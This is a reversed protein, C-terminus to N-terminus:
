KNTKTAMGFKVGDCIKKVEEMEIQIKFRLWPALILSCFLSIIEKKKKKKQSAFM